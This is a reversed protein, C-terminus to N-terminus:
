VTADNAGVPLVKGPAEGEWERCLRRLSAAGRERCQRATKGPLHAAVKEWVSPRRPCRADDGGGGEPVADAPCAVLDRRHKMLLADLLMSENWSWAPAAVDAASAKETPRDGRNANRRDRMLRKFYAYARLKVDEVTSGLASAMSSWARESSGHKELAVVFDDHASPRRKKKPRSADHEGGISRGRSQAPPRALSECQPEAKNEEPLEDGDASVSNDSLRGGNVASGVEHDSGRNESMNPLTRSHYFTPIEVHYTPRDKQIAGDIRSQSIKHRRKRGQQAGRSRWPPKTDKDDKMKQPLHGDAVTLSEIM